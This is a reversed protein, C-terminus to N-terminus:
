HPFLFEGLLFLILLVGLATSVYVLSAHEKQRLIATFGTIFSLVGAVMAVLMTLALAPRAAIDELLTNGAPVSEYLSNTFSAGIVFLLPTAVILGISWWGLRTRPSQLFPSSINKM